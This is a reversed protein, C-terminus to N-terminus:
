STDGDWAVGRPITRSCGRGARRRGGEAATGGGHGHGSLDRENGFGGAGQEGVLLSEDALRRPQQTREARRRRRQGIERVLERGGEQDDDRAFEVCALRSNEVGQEAISDHLFAGNRGGVLDGHQAVAGVRFAVPAAVVGDLNLGRRREQAREREDVRGAGVRDHQLVFCERGVEHRAGVEHEEDGAVVPRQRLALAFKEHKESLDPAFAEHEHEVFGIERPSGAVGGGLRLELLHHRVDLAGGFRDGAVLRADEGDGGPEREAGLFVGAARVLEVRVREPAVRAPVGAAERGELLEQRARQGFRVPERELEGAREAGHAGVEGVGRARTALRRASSSASRWVSPPSPSRKACSSALRRVAVSRASSPM